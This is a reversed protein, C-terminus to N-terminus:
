LISFMTKIHRVSYYYQEVSLLMGGHTSNPTRIKARAIPVIVFDFSCVLRHRNSELAVLDLM